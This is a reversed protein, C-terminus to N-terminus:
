GHNAFNGHYKERAMIAVLEALEIDHYYGLNKLKSNIKIAVTWKQKNKHWFVSKIGSTNNKKLKQNCANQSVTAERLNEIKNNLKNNDIHDVFKPLYGYHFLYILRHCSYIKGNIGIRKYVDVFGAESGIPIKNLTKIKWYLNGDKYEFISKLYDQTLINIAM